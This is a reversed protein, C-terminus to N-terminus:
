MNVLMNVTEEIPKTIINRVLLTLLSIVGAITFFGYTIWQMRSSALAAYMDELSTSIMLVGRADEKTVHCALCKPKMEIPELYTLLRKGEDQEIYSVGEKKGENFLKLAEKFKPNDIGKAVNNIKNPHNATWEPKLDGYEKEVAKLTKFDQFAEEVGNSRIIQVRETGKTAKMNEILHRVMDAREDLMDKYITYLIPHAMLESASRREKLSDKKEQEIVTYTLFGFGVIIISVVTFFIKASISNKLM